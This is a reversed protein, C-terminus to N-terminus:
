AEKREEQMKKLDMLVWELTRRCCPNHGFNVVTRGTAIERRVAQFVRDRREALGSEFGKKWHALEIRERYNHSHSSRLIFWLNRAHRVIWNLPWLYCVRDNCDFRRYALGFGPPMMVGEEVITKLRM